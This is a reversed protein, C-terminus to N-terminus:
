SSQKEERPNTTKRFTMLCTNSDSLRRHRKGRIIGTRLSPINDRVLAFIDPEAFRLIAMTLVDDPDIEGKLSAWVDHCHRLALKLQRPTQCLVSIAWPVSVASAMEGVQYRILEQLRPDTLDPDDWDSNREGFPDLYGGNRLRELWGKRFKYLLNWVSQPKLPPVEEVYRSIKQLDIQTTLATTAVVVSVQRTRQLHFLMSQIPNLRVASERETNPGDERGGAFRELDEIWLVV